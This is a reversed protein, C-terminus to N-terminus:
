AKVERVEVRVIQVGALLPNSSIIDKVDSKTCDIYVKFVHGKDKLGWAMTSRKNREIERLARSFRAQIRCTM